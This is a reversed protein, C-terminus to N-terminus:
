YYNQKQRNMSIAIKDAAPNKLNQLVPNLATEMLMSSPQPLFEEVEIAEPPRVPNSTIRGTLSVASTNTRKSVSAPTTTTPPTFPRDSTYRDSLINSQVCKTESAKSIVSNSSSPPLNLNPKVISSTEYEASVLRKSVMATSQPSRPVTHNPKFIRDYEDPDTIDASNLLDSDDNTPQYPLRADPDTPDELCIFEYCSMVNQLNEEAVLCFSKRSISNQVKSVSSGCRTFSRESNQQSYSMSNNNDCLPQVTQMSPINNNNNDSMGTDNRMANVNSNALQSAAQECVGKNSEIHNESSTTFPICSKIDVVYSTILSHSICVGVLQNFSPAIAM